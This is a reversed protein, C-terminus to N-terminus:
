YSSPQLHLNPLWTKGTGFATIRLVLVELTAILRSRGVATIKVSKRFLKKGIFAYHRQLKITSCISLGRLEILRNVLFLKVQLSPLFGPYLDSFTDYKRQRM